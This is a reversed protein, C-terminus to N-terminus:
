EYALQAIYVGHYIKSYFEFNLNKFKFNKFIACIMEYNESKGFFTGM